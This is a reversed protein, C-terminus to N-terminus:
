LKNIWVSLSTGFFYRLVLNIDIYSSDTRRLHNVKSLYLTFSINDELQVGM